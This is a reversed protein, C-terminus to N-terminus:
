SGYASKPDDKEILYFDSLGASEGPSEPMLGQNVRHANTVILSASAQRFVTQLRVV